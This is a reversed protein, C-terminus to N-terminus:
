FAYNKIPKFDKYYALICHNYKVKLEQRMCSLCYTEEIVVKKNILGKIPLYTCFQCIPEGCKVCKYKPKINRHRYCYDQKNYNKAEKSLKEIDNLCDYCYVKEAPYFTSASNETMKCCEKCVPKGCYNCIGVASNSMHKHCTINKANLIEPFIKGSYGCRKCYAKDDELINWCDSCVNMPTPMQPILVIQDVGEDDTIFYHNYIQRTMFQENFMEQYSNNGNKNTYLIACFLFM